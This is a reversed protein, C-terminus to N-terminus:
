RDGSLVCASRAVAMAVAGQAPQFAPPEWMRQTGYWSQKLLIPVFEASAAGIYHDDADVALATLGVHSGAWQRGSRSYASDDLKMGPNIGVETVFKATFGPTQM